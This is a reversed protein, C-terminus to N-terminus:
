LNEINTFSEVLRGAPYEHARDALSDLRLWKHGERRYAVWHRNDKNQVLGIAGEAEQLSRM